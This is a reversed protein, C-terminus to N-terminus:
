HLPLPDVATVKSFAAKVSSSLSYELKRTLDDLLFYLEPAQLQLIEKKQFYFPNTCRQFYDINNAVM